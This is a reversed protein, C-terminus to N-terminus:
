FKLKYVGFSLFFEYICEHKCIYFLGYYNNVHITKYFGYFLGLCFEWALGVRARLIWTSVQMLM